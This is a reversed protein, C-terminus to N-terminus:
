EAREYGIRLLLSGISNSGCLRFHEARRADDTMGRVMVQIECVNVYRKSPFQVVVYRFPPLNDRCPLTVTAGLPVKGPYQGCLTYNWLIPKSDLPSISTLGVVFDNSRDGACSLVAYLLLLTLKLWSVYLARYLLCRQCVKWWWKYKVSTLSIIPHLINLQMCLHYLTAHKGVSWVLTAVDLINRFIGYKKLKWRRSPLWRLFSVHQIQRPGWALLWHIKANSLSFTTFGELHEGHRTFAYFSQDFPSWLVMFHSLECFIMSFIYDTAHGQM